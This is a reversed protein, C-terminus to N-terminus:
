PMSSPEYELMQFGSLQKELEEPSSASSIPAPWPGQDGDQGAVRWDGDEWVLSIYQRGWLEQTGGQESPLLGVVWLAIEAASPTFADVRYAAVAVDGRFDDVQEVSELADDRWARSAVVDVAAEYDSADEDRGPSLARTFNIAAQTAGERTRAYGVPVGNRAATPGVESRDEEGQVQPLPEAGGDVGSRGFLYGILVGIILAVVAVPIVTRRGQEAM